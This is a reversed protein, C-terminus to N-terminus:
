PCRGPTSLDQSRHEKHGDELLPRNICSPQREMRGEVACRLLQYPWRFSCRPRSLPLSRNTPTPLTLMRPNLKRHDISHFHRTYCYFPRPKLTRHTPCGSHQAHFPLQLLGYQPRLSTSLVTVSTFGLNHLLTSHLHNRFLCILLATFLTPLTPSSLDPESSM